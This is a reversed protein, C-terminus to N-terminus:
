YAGSAVVSTRGLGGGADSLVLPVSPGAREIVPHPYPTELAPASGDGTGNPQANWALPIYRGGRQVYGDGGYSLWFIQGYLGTVVYWDPTQRLQGAPGSASGACIATGGQCPVLTYTGIEGAPDPALVSLAGNAFPTETFSREFSRTYGQQVSSFELQEPQLSANVPPLPEGGLRACAGLALLVGLVSVAKLGVM